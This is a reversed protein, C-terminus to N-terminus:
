AFNRHQQHVSESQSTYENSITKTGGCTITPSTYPSPGGVYPQQTYPITTPGTYLLPYRAAKLEEVAAKLAALAERLLALTERQLDIADSLVVLAESNKM